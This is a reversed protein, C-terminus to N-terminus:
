RAPRVSLLDRDLLRVLDDPAMVAAHQTFGVLDAFLVSM